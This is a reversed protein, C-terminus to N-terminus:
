THSLAIAPFLTKGCKQDKTNYQRIIRISFDLPFVKVTNVFGASKM